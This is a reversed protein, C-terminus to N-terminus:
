MVMHLLSVWKKNNKPIYKVHLLQMVVIHCKLIQINDHYVQTNLKKFGHEIEFGTMQKKLYVRIDTNFNSVRHGQTQDQLELPHIM